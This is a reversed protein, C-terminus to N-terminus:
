EESQGQKRRQRLKRVRENAKESEADSACEDSCYARRRKRPDFNVFFQACWGCQRLHGAHGHGLLLALGLAVGAEVSNVSYHHVVAGDTFGLRWPVARLKRDLWTGHTRGAATPDEAADRLVRRAEQRLSAYAWTGSEEAERPFVTSYAARPNEHGRTHFLRIEGAPDPEDDFYVAIAPVFQVFPAEVELTSGPADANAFDLAAQIIRQEFDSAHLPKTLPRRTM